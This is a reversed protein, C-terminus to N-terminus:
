QALRDSEELLLTQSIMLVGETLRPDLLMHRGALSGQGGALQGGVRMCGGCVCLIM